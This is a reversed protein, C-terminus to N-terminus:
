NRRCLVGHLYAKYYDNARGASSSYVYLVWVTSEFTTESSSWFDTYAGLGLATYLQSGTGAASLLATYHAYTPLFWDNSNSIAYCTNCAPYSTSSATCDGTAVDSGYWQKEINMNVYCSNDALKRITYSGTGNNTVTITSGINIASCHATTFEQLTTPTPLPEEECIGSELHFGDECLACPNGPTL